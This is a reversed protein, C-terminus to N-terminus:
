PNMISETHLAGTLLRIEPTIFKIRGSGLPRGDLAVVAVRSECSILPIHTEAFSIDIFNGAAGSDIMAITEVRRGRTSLAVLVGFSHNTSGVASVESHSLFGEPSWGSRLIPVSTSAHM